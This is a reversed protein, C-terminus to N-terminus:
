MIEYRTGSNNILQGGILEFINDSKASVDPYGRGVTGDPLTYGPLSSSALPQERWSKVAAEQFSLDFGNASTFITSFGGGSVINFGQDLNTSLQEEGAKSGFTGGVATVINTYIYIFLSLSLFFRLSLYSFLNFITFLCANVTSDIRVM